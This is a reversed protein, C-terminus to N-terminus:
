MGSQRWSSFFATSETPPTVSYTCIHHLLWEDSGPVLSLFADLKIEHRSWVKACYKPLLFGVMKNHIITCLTGCLLTHNNRYYKNIFEINAYLIGTANLQTHHGPIWIKQSTLSTSHWQILITTNLYSSVQARECQVCSYRPRDSWQKAGM